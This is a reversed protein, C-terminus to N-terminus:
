VKLVNSYFAMPPHSKGTMCNYITPVPGGSIFDKYFDNDKWSPLNMSALREDRFNFMPHSKMVEPHEGDFRLLPETYNQWANYKDIFDKNAGAHKVLEENYYALKRDMVEQMNMRAFGYHYIRLDPLIARRNQLYLSFYSDEGNPLNYIPHVNFKSGPIVKWIRQPQPSWSPGPVAIHNFDRYFHLFGPIWEQIHPYRDIAIRLRRIDEPRILEDVDTCVIWSGPIAVDLFVQKQEELNKFPRKLEILLIKKDVDEKDRFEQILERTRDISKGDATRRVNSEVAGHVLIIQDISNYISRLTLQILEEENCAAIAQVLFPKSNIREVISAAQPVYFHQVQNMPQINGYEYVM